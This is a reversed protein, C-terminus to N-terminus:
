REPGENFASGGAHHEVGPDAFGIGGGGGGDGGGFADLGEGAAGALGAGALARGGDEGHGHRIEEFVRLELM